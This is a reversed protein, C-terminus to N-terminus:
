FLNLFDVGVGYGDSQCSLRLQVLDGANAEEFKVRKTELRVFYDLVTAELEFQDNQRSIEFEFFTADGARDLEFEMKKGEKGETFIEVAGSTEFVVRLFGAVDLGVRGPGGREAESLLFVEFKGRIRFNRRRFESRSEFIAGNNVLISDLCRSKRSEALFRWEASDFRPNSLYGHILQDESNALFAEIQDKHMLNQSQKAM